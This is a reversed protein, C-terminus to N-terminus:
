SSFQYKVVLGIERRGAHQRGALSLRTACIQSLAVKWFDPRAGGAPVSSTAKMTAQDLVSTHARASNNVAAALTTM